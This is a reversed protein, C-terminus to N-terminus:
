RRHVLMPLGGLPRLTVQPDTRVERGSVLDFRLHQTLTVLILRAEMVSFHSGICQRPGAAFPVFTGRAPPTLFRDPDFGEPNPWLVPDRHLAYPAITVIQRAGIAYEALQDPGLSCRGFVGVPPYLRLTELVVRESFPLGELDEVRCPRGSLTDVEAELRRRQDPHRSLLFLVWALLSAVTEHGALLFTVLEDGLQRESMPQGEEDRAELLTQLLDDFPHDRHALELVRRRICAHAERFRRDRATPLVPPISFFSQFRSQMQRQLEAVAVGIEDSELEQSFAAWGIIQLNLGNMADAADVQSQWTACAAATRAVIMPALAEVKRRGFAPQAMRRQRRWLEGDSTILGEGMFWKLMHYFPSDKGYNRHNDVLIHQVAAPDSVLVRSMPGVRFHVVDGYREKLDILARLPDRRFAQITAFVERGRPGPIL